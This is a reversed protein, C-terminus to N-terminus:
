VSFTPMSFDNNCTKKRIPKLTLTKPISKPYASKRSMCNNIDYSTMLSRRARPSIKMTSSQRKICLLRTGSRVFLRMSSCWDDPLESHFDSPLSDSQVLYFLIYSRIRADNSFHRPIPHKKFLNEMFSFFFHLFFHLHGLLCIFILYLYLLLTTNIKTFFLKQIMSQKATM